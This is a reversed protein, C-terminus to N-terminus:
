SYGIASHLYELEFIWVHEDEWQVMPLLAVSWADVSNKADSVVDDDACERFPAQWHNWWISDFAWKSCHQAPYTLLLISWNDRRCLSHHHDQCFHFKMKFVVTFDSRMEGSWGKGYLSFAKTDGLPVSLPKVFWAVVPYVRDFLMWLKNFSEEGICFFDYSEWFEDGISEFLQINNWNKQRRHEVIALFLM